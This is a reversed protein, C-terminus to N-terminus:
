LVLLSRYTNAKQLKKLALYSHIKVLDRCIIVFVEKAFSYFNVFTKDIVKIDTNTHFNLRKVQVNVSLLQLRLKKIFCIM